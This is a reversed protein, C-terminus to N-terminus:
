NANSWLINHDPNAPPQNHNAGIRRDVRRLFEILAGVGVLNM